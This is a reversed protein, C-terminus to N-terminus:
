AMIFALVWISILILTAYFTLNSDIKELKKMSEEFRKYTDNDM